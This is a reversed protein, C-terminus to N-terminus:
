NKRSNSIKRYLEIVGPHAENYSKTNIAPIGFLAEMENMLVTPDAGLELQEEFYKLNLNRAVKLPEKFDEMYETGYERNGSHDVASLNKIRVAAYMTKGNIVNSTVKWKGKM